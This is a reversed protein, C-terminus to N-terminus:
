RTRENPNPVPVIKTAGPIFAQVEEFTMSAPLGIITGNDKASYIAYFKSGAPKAAPQTTPQATYNTAPQAARAPATSSATYHTQGGIFQDGNTSLEYSRNAGGTTRHYQMQMNRPDTIEKVLTKEWSLEEQLSMGHHEVRKKNIHYQGWSYARDTIEEFSICEFRYKAQFADFKDVGVQLVITKANNACANDIENKYNAYSGRGNGYKSQIGAVEKRFRDMANYYAIRDDRTLIVTVLETKARATAPNNVFVMNRAPPTIRQGQAKATSEGIGAITAAAAITVVAAAEKAFKEFKDM